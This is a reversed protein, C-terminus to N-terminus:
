FGHLKSERYVPFGHIQSVREPTYLGTMIGGWASANKFMLPELNSGKRIFWPKLALPM